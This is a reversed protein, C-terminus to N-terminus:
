VINILLLSKRLPLSFIWKPNKSIQSDFGRTHKLQQALDVCHQDVFSIEFRFDWSWRWHVGLAVIPSIIMVDCLQELLIQLTYEVVLQLFSPASFSCVKRTLTLKLAFRIRPNQPCIKKLNQQLNRHQFYTTMSPLSLPLSLQFSQSLFINIAYVFITPLPLAHCLIVRTNLTLSSFILMSSPASVKSNNRNSFWFPLFIKKLNITVQSIRINKNVKKHEEKLKNWWAIELVM